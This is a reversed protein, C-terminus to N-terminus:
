TEYAKLSDLDSIDHKQGLNQNSKLMYQLLLYLLHVLQIEELGNWFIDINSTPNVLIEFKKVFSFNDQKSSNLINEIPLASDKETRIWINDKRSIIKVM